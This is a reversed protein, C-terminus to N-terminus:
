KAAAKRTTTKRTTTKKTAVAKTPTPTTAVTHNPRADVRDIVPAMAKMLKRTFRAQEDVLRKQFRLQSEVLESMTPLDALLAPREPVFKATRESMDGTFELIPRELEKLQELSRDEWHEVREMVTTM